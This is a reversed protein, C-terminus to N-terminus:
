SFALAIRLIESNKRDSNCATQDANCSFTSLPSYEILGVVLRALM